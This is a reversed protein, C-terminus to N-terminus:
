PCKQYGGHEPNTATEVDRHPEATITTEGSVTEPLSGASCRCTRRRPRDGKAQKGHRRQRVPRDTRTATTEDIVAPELATVTGSVPSLSPSIVCFLWLVSILRHNAAFAMYQAMTTSPKRPPLTKRSAPLGHRAPAAPVSRRLRVSRRNARWSFCPRLTGPSGRNLETDKRSPQRDRVSGRREGVSGAGARRAPLRARGASARDARAAAEAGERHFVGGLPRPM